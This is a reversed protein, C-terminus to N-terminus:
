FGMYGSVVFHIDEFYFWQGTKCVDLNDGQAFIVYRGDKGTLIDTVRHVVNLNDFDAGAKFSIIDGVKVESIDRPVYGWIVNHEKMTPLMSEGTSLGYRFATLQFVATVTLFSVVAAAAFAILLKKRM